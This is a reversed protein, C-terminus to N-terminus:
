LSVKFHTLDVEESKIARIHRFKWMDLNDIIKFGALELAYVFQQINKFHSAVEYIWLQGDLKLTRAAERIYDSINLGMLSLNFMAVDLCGDELPLHAMDCEIVSENIAIFDFSHITHRGALAKALLAEGCGMDAVVLDSRKQLWKIAEEYPIINWTKRAEQYLTHYQMWEEPNEQLRQYTTHSYSNNWRANMRSFDGYQVNRRQVDVPNIDPLPVFIRPRVVSKQEGAKLRDLWGRLDRFAQSETRLKGEPMVGDVAADAITQKNQLRALRGEDWSWQEGDDFGYTVPM